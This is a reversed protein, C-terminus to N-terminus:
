VAVMRLIGQGILENAQSACVAMSAIANDNGEDGSPTVYEVIEELSHGEMCLALFEAKFRNLKMYRVRDNVLYTFYRCPSEEITVPLGRSISEAIKPVDYNFELVQVPSRLIFRTSSSLRDADPLEDGQMLGNSEHVHQHIAYGVRQFRCIDEFLALYGREEFVRKLAVASDEAMEQLKEVNLRSSDFQVQTLKLWASALDVLRLGFAHKAVLHALYSTTALYYGQIDKLLNRDIRTDAYYYNLFVDPHEKVWQLDENSHLNLAGDPLHEDFRLNDTGEILKIGPYLALLHLQAREQLKYACFMELTHELDDLQEEPFGIIFSTTARVGHEQTARVIERVSELKLWKKIVDQMRESGTEIGFYIDRCGAASLREILEPTLTDARASMSWQVPSGQAIFEDCVEAVWRKRCTFLDHVMSFAHVNYRNSLELVESVLKKASKVRYRKEWFLNTTCFTCKFPCGRGAEIEIGGWYGRRLGHEVPYLHWAPPPLEDLNEILGPHRNCNGVSQTPTLVGPVDDISRGSQLADILLDTVIEGEGKVVADVLAPFAKLVPEAVFSVNPGGFVVFTGPKRQKITAALRLAQLFSTCLSSFGVVDPDDQLIWAAAEEYFDRGYSLRGDLIELNLDRIAVDAGRREFVSAIIMIGLPFDAYARESYPHYLLSPVLSARM